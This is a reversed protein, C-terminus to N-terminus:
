FFFTKRLGESRGVRFVFDQNSASQVPFLPQNITKVYHEIIVHIQLNVCECVRVCAYVYMKRQTRAISSRDQTILLSDATLVRLSFVSVRQSECNWVWAIKLFYFFKFPLMKQFVHWTERAAIFACYSPPPLNSSPSAVPPPATINRGILNWQTPSQIKVASGKTYM